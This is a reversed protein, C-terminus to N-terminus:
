RRSSTPKRRRGASAASTPSAASISSAGTPKTRRRDGRHRPTYADAAEAFRDNARYINGLEIVAEVDKPNADVVRKITCPRRTRGSSRELCNGIQIDANRRLADNQPCRRTSRRDRGRLAPRGPLRRRAGHVALDSRPISTPPSGCIPPRCSRGRTPASRRASGTSCRASAPARDDRDARGAEPRGQDVRAARPGAAPRALEGRFDVLAKIAEDREGARALIRAYGEVVRLATADTKYAKTIAAM